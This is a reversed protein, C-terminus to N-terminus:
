QIKHKPSSLYRWLLWMTVIGCNFEILANLIMMGPDWQHQELRIGSALLSFELAFEVLTGVIFLYALDKWRLQRLFVLVIGALLNAIALGGMILRQNGRGMDRSVRIITDDLHIWQSLLGVL